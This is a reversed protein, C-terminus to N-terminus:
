IKDLKKIMEYFRGYKMEEKMEEWKEKIKDTTTKESATNSQLTNQIAAPATMSVQQM